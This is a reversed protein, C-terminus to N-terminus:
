MMYILHICFGNGKIIIEAKQSAGFIISTNNFHFKIMLLNAAQFNFQM